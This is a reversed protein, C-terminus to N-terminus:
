LEYTEVPESDNHWLMAHKTAAALCATWPDCWDDEFFTDGVTGNHDCEWLWAGGMKFIKPRLM